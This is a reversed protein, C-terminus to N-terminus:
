PPECPFRQESRILQAAAVFSTAAFPHTSVYRADTGSSYAIRSLWSHRGVIGAEHMIWSRRPSHQRASTPDSRAYGDGKADTVGAIGAPSNSALGGVMPPSFGHPEAVHRQSRRDVAGSTARELVHGAQLPTIDAVAPALFVDLVRTPRMVELFASQLPSGACSAVEHGTPESDM